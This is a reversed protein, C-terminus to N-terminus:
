PPRCIMGNAPDYVSQYMTNPKSTGDFHSQIAMARGNNSSFQFGVDTTDGDIVNLRPFSMNWVTSEEMSSSVPVGGPYSLWLNSGDQSGPINVGEGTGNRRGWHTTFILNNGNTPMVFDGTATERQADAPRRRQHRVLGAIAAKPPTTPEM